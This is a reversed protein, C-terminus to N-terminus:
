IQQKGGPYVNMSTANLADNPFKKHSPVNDFLFIGTIGTFQQELIDIARQVQMENNFYGEQTELYLRAEENDVKLYGIGEVIFDSVM